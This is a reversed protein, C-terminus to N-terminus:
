GGDREKEDVVRADYCSCLTLDDWEIEGHWSWSNVGLAAFVSHLMCWTCCVGLAAYVLHLVCQSCCESLAAYISHLMWQTCCVSLAAKVSHLMCRTCCEGLAAYVSYWTCRRNDTTGENEHNRTSWQIYCWSGTYRGVSRGGGALEGFSSSLYLWRTVNGRNRILYGIILSDAGPAAGISRRWILWRCTSRWDREIMAQLHMELSAWECSQLADRPESSWPRWTCRWVRRILAESHIESNVQDHGGLADRFESSLPRWTCRQIWKIEAELHM